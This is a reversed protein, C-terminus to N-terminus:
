AWEEGNWWQAKGNSYRMAGVYYNNQLVSSPADILNLTFDAGLTNTISIPKTYDLGYGDVKYDLPYAENENFRYHNASLGLLHILNNKGSNHALFRINCGVCRCNEFTIDNAIKFSNNTHMYFGLDVDGGNVFSTNKFHLIAGSKTGCGYVCSYYLNKGVFKCNQVDRYYHNEERETATFDDHIVYRTNEGIVTLNKLSSTEALNLVSIKEDKSALAMKLITKDRDVGILSVYDPVFIGFINVAPLSEDTLEPTLDYEGEAIYVEYRNNYSALSDLELMLQRFLGSGSSYEVRNIKIHENGKLDEVDNKIDKLQTNVGVRTLSNEKNKYVISWGRIYKISDDTIEFETTQYGINFPVLAIATGGNETKDTYGWVASFDYTAYGGRYIFTDGKEVPIYDSCYNGKVPNIGGNNSIYGTNNMYFVEGNIDKEIGNLAEESERKNDEIALSIRKIESSLSVLEMSPNSSKNGWFRIFRCNFDNVLVELYGENNFEGIHTIPKKDETYMWIPFLFEQVAYKGKFRILQGYGVEIYDSCLFTDSTNLKGSTNIYGNINAIELREEETFKEIANVSNYASEKVYGYDVVVDKLGEIEEKTNDKLYISGKGTHSFAMIFNVGQPITVEKDTYPNSSYDLLSTPSNLEKDAYGCVALIDTSVAYKGSFLFVDGESVPILESLSNDGGSQDLSIKGNALIYGYSYNDFGNRGLMYQNKGVESGLESLERTIADQSMTINQSDGTEQSIGEARLYELDNWRNVGDGIKRLKTDIEYGVEGELLIPNIEAWRASSDRRLQIRDM